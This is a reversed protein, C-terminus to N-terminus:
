RMNPYNYYFMELAAVARKHKDWLLPISEQAQEDNAKVLEQFANEIRQELMVKEEAILM